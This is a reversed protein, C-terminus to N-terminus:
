SQRHRRRQLLTRPSRMRLRLLGRTGPAGKRFVPEKRAETRCCRRANPIRAVLAGLTRPKSVLCCTPRRPRSRDERRPLAEEPRRSGSRRPTRRTQTERSGRGSELPVQRFRCPRAPKGRSKNRAGTCAAGPENGWIAGLDGMAVGQAIKCTTKKWPIAIFSQEIAGKLAPAQQKHSKEGGTLDMLVSGGGHSFSACGTPGGAAIPLRKSKESGLKNERFVNLTIAWPNGM